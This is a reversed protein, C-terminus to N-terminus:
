SATQQSAYIQQYELSNKILEDHRGQAILEGEMLVIIHDYDKIPEIKQTISILTLNPFAHRINSLIRAETGADVRATFDDLLLVSPNIALARALMLRQKQGGSLSTGRESVDTDIGQPLEDILGSLEAVELASTLRREDAGHKFLINEKLSANFVISDQFVIGMKSLLAEQDWESVSVGDIHISGETPTALGALLYVLETKGAGTPGLIATKTHPKIAFSINKLIEKEGYRLTVNKFVIEGKLESRHTGEHAEKAVAKDDSDLVEKIRKWSVQARSIFTSAFSLVFFPWIFASTYAFFASMEGLSLTGAVVNKGGFWLVVLVAGQGLLTIVPILAAFFTAIQIGIDNSRKNVVDFKQVEAQKANLVRVLPASVISENIVRNIGDLNAQSMGFLPGLRRFVLAFVILIFPMVSLTLLAMKWNITLLFIIAGVLTIASMLLSAIGSAVLNKIADVDSTLVTILRGGSMDRIYSFSRDKLTKILLQRIDFAIRESAYVSIFAQLLTAVLIAVAIGGLVSLFLWVDGTGSQYMDIYEGTKKPFYLSLGNAVTSLLAIASIHLRYPKLAELM